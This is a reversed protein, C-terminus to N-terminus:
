GEIIGNALDAAEARLAMLEDLLAAVREQKAESLLEIPFDADIDGFRQPQDTAKGQVRDLVKETGIVLARVDDTVLLADLTRRVLEPCATDLMGQIDRNLKKFSSRKVHV